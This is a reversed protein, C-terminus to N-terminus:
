DNTIVSTVDATPLADRISRIGYTKCTMVNSRVHRRTTQQLLVEGPELNKMPVHAAHASFLFEKHGIATSLFGFVCAGHGCHVVSM